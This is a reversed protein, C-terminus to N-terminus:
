AKKKKQRWSSEFPPDTSANRSTCIASVSIILRTSEEREREDRERRERERKEDEGQGTQKPCQGCQGTGDMALLPGESPRRGEHSNERRRGSKTKDDAPYPAPWARLDIAQFCGFRGVHFADVLEWERVASHDFALVSKRKRSPGIVDARSTDNVIGSPWFVRFAEKTEEWRHAWGRCSLPFVSEVLRGHQAHDQNNGRIRDCWDNAPQRCSIVMARM